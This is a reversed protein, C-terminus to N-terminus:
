NDDTNKLYEICMNKMCLLIYDDSLNDTYNIIHIFKYWLKTYTKINIGVMRVKATKSLVMLM